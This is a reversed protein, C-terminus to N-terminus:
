KDHKFISNPLQGEGYEKTGVVLKQTNIWKWFETGDKLNQNGSSLVVCILHEVGSSGSPCFLYFSSLITSFCLSCFSLWVYTWIVATIFILYFNIADETMSM